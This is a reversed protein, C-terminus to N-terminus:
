KKDMRAKIEEYIDWNDRVCILCSANESDLSSRLKSITLGAVSFVRESPASTAPICLYKRAIKGLTPFRLLHHKWWRLPDTYDGRRNGELIERMPIRPLDRYERLEDNVKRNIENMNIAPPGVPAIYADEEAWADHEDDHLQMPEVRRNEYLPVEFATNYEIVWLDIM